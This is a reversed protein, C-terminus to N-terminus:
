VAAPTETTGPLVTVTGDTSAPESSVSVTAAKPTPTTTTTKVTTSTSLSTLTGLVKELVTSLTDNSITGASSPVVGGLFHTVAAVLVITYTSPVAVKTALLVVYGGALVVCLAGGIILGLTQQKNQM